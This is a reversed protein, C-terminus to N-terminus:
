QNISYSKQRDQLENRMSNRNRESELYQAETMCVETPFRTGMPTSKRCFRTEGDITKVTYGAPVKPAVKTAAAPPVTTAPAATSTTASAAAPAAAPNPEAAFAALCASLALPVSVSRLLTNM